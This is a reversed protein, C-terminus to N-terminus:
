DFLFRMQMFFPGQRFSIRKAGVTSCGSAVDNCTNGIDMIAGQTVNWGVDFGIPSKNNDGIETGVTQVVLHRRLGSCTVAGCVINGEAPKYLYYNLTDNGYVATVEGDWEECVRDADASNDRARDYSKNYCNFTVASIGGGTNYVTTPSTSCSANARVQSTSGSNFYTITSEGSAYTLSDKTTAGTLDNVYSGGVTYCYATTNNAIYTTNGAPDDRSGVIKENTTTTKVAIAARFRTVHDLEMVVYKYKGPPVANITGTPTGSTSGDASITPYFNGDFFQFCGSLDAARSASLLPTIPPNAASCFWVKYIRINTGNSATTCQDLGAADMLKTDVVQTGSAYYTSCAPLVSASSAATVTDFASSSNITIPQMLIVFAFVLYKFKNLIKNM